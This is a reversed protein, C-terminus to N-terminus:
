AIVRRECSVIKSKTCDPTLEIKNPTTILDAFKIFIKEILIMFKIIPHSYQVSYKAIYVEPSTDHLNLILKAGFIKPIIATFILIELMNHVHIIRNQHSGKLCLIDINYGEDALAEAERRIRPDFPFYSFVVM